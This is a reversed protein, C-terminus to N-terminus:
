ELELDPKSLDTLYVVGIPLLAYKIYSLSLSLSLSLSIITVAVQLGTINKGKKICGDM